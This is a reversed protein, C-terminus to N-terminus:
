TIVKKWPWSTLQNGQWTYIHWYRKWSSSLLSEDGLLIFLATDPEPPIGSTAIQRELHQVLDQIRQATQQYAIVVRVPVRLLLVKWAAFSIVRWDACNELEVAVKPRTFPPGNRRGPTRQGWDQLAFFQADVALYERSVFRPGTHYHMAVHCGMRRAQRRLVRKMFTTWEKDEGQFERPYKKDYLDKLIRFFQALWETAAAHVDTNDDSM